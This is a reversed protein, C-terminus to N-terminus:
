KRRDFKLAKERIYVPHPIVDVLVKYVKCGECYEDPILPSEELIIASNKESVGYEFIKEESHAVMPITTLIGYGSRVGTLNKRFAVKQGKKFKHKDGLLYEVDSTIPYLMTTKLVFARMVLFARYLEGQNVLSRVRPEVISPVVNKLTSSHILRRSGAKEMTNFMMLILADFYKRKLHANSCIKLFSADFGVKDKQRKFGGKAWYNYQDYFSDVVKSPVGEPIQKDILFLIDRIEEFDKSAQESNDLFCPLRLIFNPNFPNRQHESLSSM